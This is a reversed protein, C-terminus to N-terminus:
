DSRYLVILVVWSAENRGFQGAGGNQMGLLIDVTEEATPFGATVYTILASRNERKCQAFKEKIHEM